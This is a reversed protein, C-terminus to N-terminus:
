ASECELAVGFTHSVGTPLHAVVTACSELGREEAMGAVVYRRGRGAFVPTRQRGCGVGRMYPCISHRLISLLTGCWRCWCSRYLRRTRCASDAPDLLLRSEPDVSPALQVPGARGGLTEESSGREAIKTRSRRGCGFALARRSFNKSRGSSKAHARSRQSTAQVKSPSWNATPSLRPM